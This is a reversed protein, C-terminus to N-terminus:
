KTAFKKVGVFWTLIIAVWVFILIPYLAWLPNTFLGLVVALIIIEKSTTKFIMKQFLNIFIIFVLASLTLFIVGFPQMYESHPATFNNIYTGLMYFRDFNFLDIYNGIYIEHYRSTAPFVIQFLYNTSILSFVDAIIGFCFTVLLRLLFIKKSVIKRVTRLFLWLVAADSLLMTLILGISSGYYYSPPLAMNAYVKSPVNLFIVTLAVLLLKRIISKNM